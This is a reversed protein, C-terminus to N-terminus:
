KKANNAFVNKKLVKISYLHHIEWNNQMLRTVFDVDLHKNQLLLFFTKLCTVAKAFEIISKFKM